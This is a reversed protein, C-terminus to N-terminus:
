YALLFFCLLGNIKLFVPMAARNPLRNRVSIGAPFGYAVVIAALMILSYVIWLRQIGIMGIVPGASVAMLAWGLSGWLRFEGFRRGTGEITDLILSNSQSFFRAKLFFFYALMIMVLVPYSFGIFAAQMLILNGFLLVLLVRKTNHWRDSIYGWFPNALVSIFPGGALLVGIQFSSVGVSHLYLPFFSMYIAIAGYIFFNFSKIVAFSQPQASSAQKM